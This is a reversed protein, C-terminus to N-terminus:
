AVSLWTKWNSMPGKRITYDDVLEKGRAPGDRSSARNGKDNEDNPSHPRDCKSPKMSDSGECSPKPGTANSSDVENTVNRLAVREKDAIRNDSLVGCKVPAADLECRYSSPEPSRRDLLEAVLASFQDVSFTVEQVSDATKVM